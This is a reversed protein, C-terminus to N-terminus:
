EYIRAASLTRAFFTWDGEPPLDQKLYTYSGQADAIWAGLAELFRDLTQNEWEAGHQAHDERLRALFAALAERNPIHDEASLLPDM